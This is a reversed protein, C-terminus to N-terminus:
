ETTSNRPKQEPVHSCGVVTVTCLEKTLSQGKEEEGIDLSEQHANTYSLLSMQAMWLYNVIPRYFMQM